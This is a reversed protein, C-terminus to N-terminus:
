TMGKLFRSDVTLLLAGYTVVPEAKGNANLRVRRENGPVLVM